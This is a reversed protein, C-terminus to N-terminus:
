VERIVGDCSISSFTCGWQSTFIARSGNGVGLIEMADFTNYCGANAYIGYGNPGVGLISIDRFACKYIENAATGEIKIGSSANNILLKEFACGTVAAPAIAHIYLGVYGNANITMNSVVAGTVFNTTADVFIVNAATGTYNVVTSNVGGGILHQYGPGQSGAITVTQNFTFTTAPSLQVVANTSLGLAYNVVAADDTGAVGTRIITGNADTAIVQTGSISVIATYPAVALATAVAFHLCAVMAVALVPTRVASPWNGSKKRSSASNTSLNQKLHLKM